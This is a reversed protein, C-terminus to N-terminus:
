PAGKQGKSNDHDPNSAAAGAGGVTKVGRVGIRPRWAREERPGPDLGPCVQAL